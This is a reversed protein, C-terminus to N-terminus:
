EWGDPMAAIIAVIKSDKKAHQILTNAFVQM